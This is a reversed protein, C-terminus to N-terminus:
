KTLHSFGLSAEGKLQLYDFYLSLTRLKRIESKTASLNDMLEEETSMHSFLLIEELSFSAWGKFSSNAIADYFSSSTIVGCLTSLAHEKEEQEKKREEKSVFM